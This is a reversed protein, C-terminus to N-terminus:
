EIVQDARVLISNPMEIGLAKATKSNVVTIFKTAREVPLESPKAGKLIKDVFVAARRFQDSFVVGYAILGGSSALELPGISPLRHKAALATIPGPNAIFFAHDGVVLAGIQQDRLTSFAGELDTLRGVEIPQLEVRLAKATDRMAELTPGNSESGRFLLVGARTIL